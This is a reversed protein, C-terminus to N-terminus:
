IHILSLPSVDTMQSQPSEAATRFSDDVDDTIDRLTGPCHPTSTEIREEQAHSTEVQYDQKEMTQVAVLSDERERESSASVQRQDDKETIQLSHEQFRLTEPTKKPAWFRDSLASRMAPSLMDESPKAPDSQILLSTDVKQRPLGDVRVTRVSATDSVSRPSAPASHGALMSAASPLKSNGGVADTDSSAQSSTRSSSHFSALAAEESAHIDDVAAAARDVQNSAKPPAPPGASDEVHSGHPGASESRRGSESVAQAQMSESRGDRKAPEKGRDNKRPSKKKISNKRPSQNTHQM